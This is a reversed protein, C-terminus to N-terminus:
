DANWCRCNCVAQHWQQTWWKDQGTTEPIEAARSADNMWQPRGAATTFKTSRPAPPSAPRLVVYACVSSSSSSSSSIPATWHAAPCSPRSCAAAAAATKHAILERLQKINSWIFCSMSVLFMCNSSACNGHHMVSDFPSM